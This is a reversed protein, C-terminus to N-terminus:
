KQRRRHVFMGDRMSFKQAYSNAQVTRQHQARVQRESGRTGSELCRRTNSHSLFAHSLEGSSDRHYRGGRERNSFRRFPRGFNRNELNRRPLDMKSAAARWALRERYAAFVAAMGILPTHKGSPQSLLQPFDFRLCEKKLIDFPQEASIEGIIVGIYNVLEAGRRYDWWPVLLPGVM